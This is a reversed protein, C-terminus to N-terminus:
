IDGTCYHANPTSVVSNWHTKITEMSATYTSVNGHYDLQNGGATIRTRQIESKEPRIDLTYRPYTVKKNHPVQDCHIWDLVNMGETTGYGQFLFGFENEGSALGRQRAIPDPHKILDRYAVIKNLTEDWITCSAGAFNNLFLSATSTPLQQLKLSPTPSVPKSQKPIPIDHSSPTARPMLM